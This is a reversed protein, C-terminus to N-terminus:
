GRGSALIRCASIRRVLIAGMCEWDWWFTCQLNDLWFVSGVHEKFNVKKIDYCTGEKRQEHNLAQGGRHPEQWTSLTYASTSTSLALLCLLANTAHM